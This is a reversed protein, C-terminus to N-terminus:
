GAEQLERLVEHLNRSGDLMLEPDVPRGLKDELALAMNVADISDFDYAQLPTDLSLAESPEGITTAIYALMWRILEADNM